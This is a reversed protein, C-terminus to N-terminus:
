NNLMFASFYSIFDPSFNEFDPPNFLNEVDKHLLEICEGFGLNEPLILGGVTIRM